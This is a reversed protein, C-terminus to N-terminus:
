NLYLQKHWACVIEYEAIQNLSVLQLADRGWTVLFIAWFVLGEKKDIYSLRPMLSADHWRCAALSSSRQVTALQSFLGMFLQYDWQPYYLRYRAENGSERGRRLPFLRSLIRPVLALRYSCQTFKTWWSQGSCIINEWSIIKTLIISM